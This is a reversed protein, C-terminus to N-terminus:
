FPGFLVKPQNPADQHRAGCDEPRRDAFLSRVLQPQLPGSVRLSGGCLREAQSRTRRRGFGLRFYEHDLRQSFQLNGFVQRAPCNCAVAREHGVKFSSNHIRHEYDFAWKIGPILSSNPSVTMDGYNYREEVPPFESREIYEQLSEKYELQSTTSTHKSYMIMVTVGPNTLRLRQPDDYFKYMKPEDGTIRHRAFLRTYDDLEYTENQIKLLWDEQLQYLGSM